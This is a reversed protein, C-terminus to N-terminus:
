SQLASHRALARYVIIYSGAMRAFESVARM